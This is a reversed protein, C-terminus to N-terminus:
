RQIHLGTGNRGVIAPYPLDERSSVAAIMKTRKGEIEADFIATPCTKGDPHMAGKAHVLPGDQFSDPLLDRAVFCMDAGSDMCWLHEATGIKGKKMVPPQKSSNLGPLSVINVKVCQWAYHGFEKCNHCQVTRPDRRPRQNNTNSYTGSKDHQSPATEIGNPASDVVKMQTQTKTSSNANTFQNPPQTKKSTYSEKSEWATEDLHHARFYTTLHELLQDPSTPKRERVYLQISRPLQQTLQEMVFIKRVEEPDQSPACRRALKTLEAMEERWTNSKKKRHEWFVQITADARSDAQALLERKLQSYSTRTEVPLSLALSKCTANLLPLLTSAYAERPTRRSVQTSEFLEFFERLDEHVSMPQVQPVAKNIAERPARGLTLAEFM